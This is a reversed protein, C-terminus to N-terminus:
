YQKEKLRRHGCSRVPGQWSSTRPRTADPAHLMVLPRRLLGSWVLGAARDSRRGLRRDMHRHTCLRLSVDCAVCEFFHEKQQTIGGCLSSKSGLLCMFIAWLGLHKHVMSLTQILPQSQEKTPTLPLCFFGVRMKVLHQDDSKTSSLASCM